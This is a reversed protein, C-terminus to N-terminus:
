KRRLKRGVVPKLRAALRPKLEDRNRRATQEAGTQHANYMPSTARMLATENPLASRATRSVESQQDSLGAGGEGEWASIANRHENTNNKMPAGKPTRLSSMSDADRERLFAIRKIANVRLRRVDVLIQVKEPASSIRDGDTWRRCSNRCRM